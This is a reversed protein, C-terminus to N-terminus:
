NLLEQPTEDGTVSVNFETVDLVDSDFQNLQTSILGKYFAALERENSVGLEECLVDFVEESMSLTYNCKIHKM